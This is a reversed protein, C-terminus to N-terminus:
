DKKAKKPELRALKEKQNVFNNKIYEIDGDMLNELCAIDDEDKEKFDVNRMVRFAGCNNLHENELRFFNWCGRRFIELMPFIYSKIISAKTTNLFYESTNLNKILVPILWVWRLIFNNIIALYYFNHYEKELVLKKRLIKRKPKGNIDQVKFFGWDMIFDWYLTYFTAIVYIVLTFYFTWPEHNFRIALTAAVVKMMGATYKGANVMHPFFEGSDLYRSICQCFRMLPPIFALFLQFLYHNSDCIAHNDDVGNKDIAESLLCIVTASDVFFSALSNFQDALWFDMFRVNLIGFSFARLFKKILFFRTQHFIIPLPLIFLFTPLLYAILPVVSYTNTPAVDATFNSALYTQSYPFDVLFSEIYFASLFWILFVSAASFFYESRVNLRPDIEFILIYNVGTKIFIFFDAALLYSLNKAM